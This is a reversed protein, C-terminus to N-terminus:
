SCCAKIIATKYKKQPSQASYLNVGNNLPFIIIVYQYM